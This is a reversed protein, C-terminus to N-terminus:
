SLFTKTGAGVWYVGPALESVQDLNILDNMTEGKYFKETEM